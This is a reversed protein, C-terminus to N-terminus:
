EHEVVVKGVSRHESVFNPLWVGDPHTPTHHPTETVSVTGNVWVLQDAETEDCFEPEGHHLRVPLTEWTPSM